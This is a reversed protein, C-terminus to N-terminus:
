PHPCYVNNYKRTFLIYRSFKEYIRKVFLFIIIVTRKTYHRPINSWVKKKLDLFVDCVM